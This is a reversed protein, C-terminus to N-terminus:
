FYAWNGRLGETDLAPLRNTQRTMWALVSLILIITIIKIFLGKLDIKKNKIQFFLIFLSIILLLIYIIESM